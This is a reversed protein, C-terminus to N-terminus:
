ERSESEPEVIQNNDDVVGYKNKVIHPDFNSKCIPIYECQGLQTYCSDTNPPFYDNDISYRIEKLIEVADRKAELFQDKTKPIIIHDHEPGQTKLPKRTVDLLTGHPLEGTIEWQALGYLTHQVSMYETEFFYPLTKKTTKFEFNMRYREAFIVDADMTGTLILELDDFVAIVVEFPLEIALVRINDGPFRSAYNNFYSAMTEIVTLTSESLQTALVPFLETEAKLSAIAKNISLEPDRSRLFEARGAHCATGISLAPKRELPILKDICQLKYKRKCRRYTRAHTQRIRLSIM